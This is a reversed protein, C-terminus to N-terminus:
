EHYESSFRAFYLNKPAPVVRDPVKTESSNSSSFKARIEVSPVEM